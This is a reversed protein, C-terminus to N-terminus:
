KPGDLCAGTWPKWVPLQQRKNANPQSTTGEASGSDTSTSLAVLAFFASPPSSASRYGPPIRALREREATM